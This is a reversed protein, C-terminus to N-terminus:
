PLRLIIYVIIKTEKEHVNSQDLYNMLISDNVYVM